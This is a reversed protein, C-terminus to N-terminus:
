APLCCIHCNRQLQDVTAIDLLLICMDLSIDLILRNEKIYPAMTVDIFNLLKPVWHKFHAQANIENM